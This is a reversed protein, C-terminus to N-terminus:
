TGFTFIGKTKELPSNIKLLLKLSKSVKNFTKLLSRSHDVLINIMPIIICLVKSTLQNIQNMFEKIFVKRYFIYSFPWQFLPRTSKCEIPYNMKTSCNYAPLLHVMIYESTFLACTCFRRRSFNGTGTGSFDADLLSSVVVM